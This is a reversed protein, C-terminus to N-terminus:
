LLAVQSKKSYTMETASHETQNCCCPSGAGGASMQAEPFYARDLRRTVFLGVALGLLIALFLVYEYLMVLLMLWYAICMQMAYLLSVFADLGWTPLAQAFVVRRASVHTRSWRFFENCMGLAFAGLVAFAYRTATDVVADQFLFLVCLGDVSTQFGPLMVRGSGDCFDGMTTTGMNMTAPSTTRVPASRTPPLPRNTGCEGAKQRALCRGMICRGVM